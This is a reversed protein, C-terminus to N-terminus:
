GCGRRTARRGDNQGVRRRAMSSGADPWVPARPGWTRCDNSAWRGPHALQEEDVRADGRVERPTGRGARRLTILQASREELVEHQALNRVEKRLRLRHRAERVEPGLVPDLDIAGEFGTVTPENCELHLGRFRNTSVVKAPHDVEAIAHGILENPHPEERPVLARKPPTSRPPDSCASRGCVRAVLRFVGAEGDSHACLTADAPPNLTGIRPSGWGGGTM